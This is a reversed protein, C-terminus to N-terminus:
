HQGVTKEFVSGGVVPMRCENQSRAEQMGASGESNQSRVGAERNGFRELISMKNRM